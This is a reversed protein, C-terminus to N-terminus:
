SALDGKAARLAPPRALTNQRWARPTTGNSRRFVRAFYGPDPLGVRRAIENIPLDTETLLRRAQAMRRETIWDGLTGGTRRRVLTTLHGPTMGVSKAVERPSLPEAFRQEITDFVEALLTENSRRLDGVVDTALRAVDVLLVTLYALVAQRYGEACDSLETEIAAITATWLPRRERPVHLRLLGGPVAHLFPLLLPHARWSSWPAQVDGGLATPDFFLGRGSAVTAVIGPNIVEGAAVVFADGDQILESPEGAAPQRAREVYVLVPFEHIHRRGHGPPHDADLRLVSVPPVQPATQYRYVPVGDRYRVPKVMM